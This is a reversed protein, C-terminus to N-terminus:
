RDGRRGVALHRKDPFPFRRNTCGIHWHDARAPPVILRLWGYRTPIITGLEFVVMSVSIGASSRRRSSTAGSRNVNWEARMLIRSTFASSSRAM